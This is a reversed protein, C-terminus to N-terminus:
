PDEREVSIDTDISVAADKGSSSSETPLKYKDIIKSLEQFNEGFGNELTLERGNSIETLAYKENIADPTVSTKLRKLLTLFSLFEIYTRVIHNTEPM